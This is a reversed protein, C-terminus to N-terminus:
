ARLFKSLVILIANKEEATISNTTLVTLLGKVIGLDDKNFRDTLKKLLPLLDIDAGYISDILYSMNIQNGMSDCYKKRELEEDERIDDIYGARYLLDQLSVGLVPAICKLHKASPKKREGNELKSVESASLGTKEAFEKQSMEKQTRLLKIYAGFGYASGNSM